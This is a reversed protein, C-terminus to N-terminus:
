DSTAIQDAETVWGGGLAKYLDVLTLLRKGISKALDIQGSFLAREADLVTLYDNQGEYYRLWSLHVYDKLAEVDAQYVLVIEKAKQHGILSDNVERLATLITQEYTFLAEKQKAKAVKLQGVLQGGAFITQLLTGGFEWIQAEPSFLNKLHQSDTGYFNSLNFTPLFAARAVGINANAAILQHEAACIDPRRVLLDSPLGTPIEPPLTLQYVRKGRLISGPSEGLLVSLHNEEQPIQRELEKVAALAEEFLSEAQAVELESTLGGEFRARAIRLSDRRSALTETSIFLELDLQRLLIYSQAVAGILSLVVTRRNEISALYQQYGAFSQNRLKGWFDLEYSLSLSFSFDSFIPSFGPIALGNQPSFRERNGDGRLNVDPFLPAREIFYDGYFEKVRFIAVQLDKNNELAKTVLTNLVEDGLNEWWNTNGLTSLENGDVRWTTPIGPDPRHYHPALNCGGLAILVIVGVTRKM